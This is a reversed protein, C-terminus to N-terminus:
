GPGYAALFTRIAAAAISELEDAPVPRTGLRSRAELPATLLALLQDAAESPDTLRLKGALALRAIRDALAEAVMRSTRTLVTDVVSSCFASTRAIIRRVADTSDTDNEVTPWFKPSADSPSVWAYQTPM